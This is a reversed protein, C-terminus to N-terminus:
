RVWIRGASWMATRNYGSANMGFTGVAPMYTRPTTPHYDMGTVGFGIFNHYATGCGSPAHQQYPAALVGLRMQALPDGAEGTATFAQNIGVRWCSWISFEDDGGGTNNIALAQSFNNNDIPQNNLVDSLKLWHARTALHVPFTIAEGSLFLAGLPQRESVADVLILRKEAMAGAPREAEAVEILTNSLHAWLLRKPLLDLALDTFPQEFMARNQRVEDGDIDSPEFTGGSEIPTTWFAAGFGTTIQAVEIALSWGGGDNAENTDCYAQYTDQDGHKVWYVGSALGLDRAAECNMLPNAMGEGSPHDSADFFVPLPTSSIAGAYPQGTQGKDNRGWCYISNYEDDLQACRWQAFPGHALLRVASGGFSPVTNLTPSSGGPEGDFMQSYTDDGWCGLRRYNPDDQKELLACSGSAFAWVRRIQRGNTVTIEELGRGRWAQSAGTAHSENNGACHTSNGIRTCFHRKGVSLEPESQFEDGLETATGNLVETWVGEMLMEDQPLSGWGFLQFAEPGDTEVRGVAMSFRHGLALFRVQTLANDGKQVLRDLDFRSDDPELGIGLQGSEINGWCVVKREAGFIACAHDWGMAIQHVPPYVGAQNPRLDIEIPDANNDVPPPPHEGLLLNNSSGWCWIRNSKTLACVNKEGAALQVLDQLQGSPHLVPLVRRTVAPNAGLQAFQNNGWCAVGNGSLDEDNADHAVLSCAFDPGLVFGSGFPERICDICGANVTDGDDCDEGAELIGNGCVPAPGADIAVVTDTAGADQPPQGADSPPQGADALPAASTVCLGQMCVQGAVCPTQPCGDSPLKYCASLLALLAASFTLRTAM